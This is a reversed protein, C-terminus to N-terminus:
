IVGIIKKYNLKLNKFKRVVIDKIYIYNQNIGIEIIIFLVDKGLQKSQNVSINVGANKFKHHCKIEFKMNGLTWDYYKSNYTGNDLNSNNYQKILKDCNLLYKEEKDGIKNNLLYKIYNEILVSGCSYIESNDINQEESNNLFKINSGDVSVVLKKNEDILESLKNTLLTELNDMNDKLNNIYEKKENILDRLHKM